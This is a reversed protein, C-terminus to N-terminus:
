HRGRRVSGTRCTTRPSSACRGATPSSQYRLQTGGHFQEGGWDFGKLGDHPQQALDYCWRVLEADIANPERAGPRGGTPLEVSALYENLEAVKARKARFRRELKWLGTGAAVVAILYVVPISWPWTTGRELILRPSDVLSWAIIASGLWVAPIALHASIGGWWLVLAVVLLAVTFVFAIPPHATYLLGGGPSSWLCGLLARPIRPLM